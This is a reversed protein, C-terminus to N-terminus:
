KIMSCYSVLALWPIESVYTKYKRSLLTRLNNKSIEYQEHIETGIKFMIHNLYDQIMMM